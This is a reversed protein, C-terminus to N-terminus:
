DPLVQRLAAGSPVLMDTAQVTLDGPPAQQGNRTVIFGVKGIKPFNIQMKEFKERSMTRNGYGPDALVVRDGVLGKFVVFHNYGFPSVAVIIPALKILDAMELNGYGIGVYGRTSVYRKLDLLSFGQRVRVLEPHEIYEKRRILGRTVDKESVRDGFQYNLLTALAAAGCSLDFKQVVVHQQRMELMSRVPAESAAASTAVTALALVSVIIQCISRQDAPRMAQGNRQSRVAILGKFCISRAATMGFSMIRHQCPGDRETAGRRAALPAAADNRAFRFRHM